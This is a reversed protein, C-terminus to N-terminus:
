VVTYTLEKTVLGIYVTVTATGPNKARLYQIGGVYFFDVVNYDSSYFQSYLTPVTLYDTPFKLVPDINVTYTDGSILDGGTDPSLTVTIDLINEISDQYVWYGKAQSLGELSYSICYSNNQRPDKWYTNGLYEATLNALPYYMDLTVTVMAPVIRNIFALLETYFSEPLPLGIDLVLVKISNNNDGNLICQSLSNQNLIFSVDPNFFSEAIYVYKLIGLRFYIYKSINLALFYPNTNNNTNIEYLLQMLAGYNTNPQLYLSNTGALYQEWATYGNSPYIRSIATDIDIFVPNAIESNDYLQLLVNSLSENDTFVLNQNYEAM